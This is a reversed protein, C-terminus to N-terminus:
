KPKNNFFLFLPGNCIYSPECASDCSWLGNESQTLLISSTQKGSGSTAPKFVRCYFCCAKDEAVSYELWQRGEYWSEQFRLCKLQDGVLVNTGNFPGKPQVPGLSLLYDINGDETLPNRIVDSGYSSMDNM